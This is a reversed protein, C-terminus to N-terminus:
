TDATQKCEGTELLKLALKKRFVYRRQSTVNQKNNKDRRDLANHIPPFVGTEM